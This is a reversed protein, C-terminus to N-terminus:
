LSLGHDMGTASCKTEADLRKFIKTWTKCANSSAGRKGKHLHRMESAYLLAAFKEGYGLAVFKSAIMDIDYMPGPTGDASDNWFIRRYVERDVKRAEAWLMRHLKAQQERISNILNISDNSSRDETISKLTKM